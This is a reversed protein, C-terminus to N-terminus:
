AAKPTQLNPKAVTVRDRGSKKSEYLAEDARKIWNEVTEGELLQAVGVSITFRIQQDGQVFVERRVRQVLAEAKKLAHQIAHNPLIVAFEEGGIRAVFDSESSFSVKLQRVCEKIVFDGIDHGYTDNVKKFHDIDLSILSVPIKSLEFLQWEQKTKEDFSRRNFAATLHDLRMNHNAEDLQKKVVDLNKKIGKMRKEKRLEKKAQHEVYFDVFERARTKLQEISDAEVADKLQELSHGIEQDEVREGRVDEALQDVVDWLIGKFEEFTARIYTYENVRYVSFFQRFRFLVKELQARDPNVLEKAFEDFTERARRVPQNELDLLHKGYTDIIYLLTAREETMDPLVTTQTSSNKPSDYDLQQILKQIWQKL